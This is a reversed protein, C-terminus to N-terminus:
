ASASTCDSLCARARVRVMIFVVWRFTVSEFEQWLMAPPKSISRCAKAWLFMDNLKGCSAKEFLKPQRLHWHLVGHKVASFLTMHKFDILSGAILGLTKITTVFTIIGLLLCPFTSCFMGNLVTPIILFIKTQPCSM